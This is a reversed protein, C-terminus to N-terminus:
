AACGSRDEHDCAAAQKSDKCNISLRNFLDRDKHTEPNDTTLLTDGYFISNAGALFCLAQAEDSMSERGASLRVYSAPMVIRAVAITKIFDFIDVDESKIQSGRNRRKTRIVIRM